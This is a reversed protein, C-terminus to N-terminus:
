VIQLCSPHYSADAPYTQLLTILLRSRVRTIFLLVCRSAGGERQDHGSRTWWTVAGIVSKETKMGCNLSIDGCRISIHCPCNRSTCSQHLLSPLDHSLYIIGRTHPERHRMVRAPQAREPSGCRSGGVQPIIYSDEYSHINEAEEM